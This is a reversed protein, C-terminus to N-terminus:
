GPRELQQRYFEVMRPMNGSNKIWELAQTTSDVQDDHMRNDPFAEIEHLYDDLWPAQQPIFV